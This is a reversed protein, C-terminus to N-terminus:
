LVAKSIETNELLKDLEEQTEPQHVKDAFYATTTVSDSVGLPNEADFKVVINCADAQEYVQTIHGQLVIQDGVKLENGQSDHPM